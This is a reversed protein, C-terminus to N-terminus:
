SRIPPIFYEGSGGLGMEYVLIDAVHVISVFKPFKPAALPNHHYQASEVLPDSIRWRKLLEGGVDAHCFGLEEQEVQYLHRGEYEARSLCTRSIASAEKYMVLSGIDHLLGMLYFKESNTEGFLVAIEKVMLGCAINHKWFMDLNVLDKSIGNFKSMVVTALAIDGLKDIGLINLAHTVSDVSTSLGYFSSNVISLLRSSFGPDARIIDAFNQFTSEPDHIADKLKHYVVPPSAVEDTLIDQIEV